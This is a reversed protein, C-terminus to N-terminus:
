GVSERPIVGTEVREVRLLTRGGEEDDISAWGRSANASIMLGALTELGRKDARIEVRGQECRIQIEGVDAM